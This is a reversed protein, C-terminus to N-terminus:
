ALNLMNQYKIIILFKYNKIDDINMANIKNVKM